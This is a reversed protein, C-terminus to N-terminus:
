QCFPCLSWSLPMLYGYRSASTNFSKVMKVTRKTIPIPNTPHITQQNTPQNTQKHTHLHNHSAADIRFSQAPTTNTHTLIYHHHYNPKKLHLDQNSWTTPYTHQTNIHHTSIPRSHTPAFLLKTYTQISINPHLISTPSNVHQLLNSSYPNHNNPSSM